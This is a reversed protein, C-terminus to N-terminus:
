SACSIFQDLGRAADAKAMESDLTIMAHLRRIVIRDATWFRVFAAVFWGEQARPFTLLSKELELDYAYRVVEEYKQCTNSSEVAEISMVSCCLTSYRQASLAPGGYPSIM